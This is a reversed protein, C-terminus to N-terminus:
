GAGEVADALARLIAVQCRPCTDYPISAGDPDFYFLGDRITARHGHGTGYVGVPVRPPCGEYVERCFDCKYAASM